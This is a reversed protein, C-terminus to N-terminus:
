METGHLTTTVGSSPFNYVIETISPTDGSATITLTDVESPALNTISNVIVAANGNGGDVVQWTSTLSNGNSYSLSQGAFNGVSLTTPLPFTTTPTATVGNSYVTKYLTRDSNYYSKATSSLIVGVGTKTLTIISDRETVSKSDITTPGVVNVQIAGTYAGGASDTGSLNFGLTTGTTLSTYKTVPYVTTNQAPTPATSGGGGGGCGAVGLMVLGILAVKHKKM